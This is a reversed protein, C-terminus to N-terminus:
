FFSSIFFNINLFQLVHYSLCIILICYITFPRLLEYWGCAFLLYWKLIILENIYSRNHPLNNRINFLKLNGTKLIVVIIPRIKNIPVFLIIILILFQILNLFNNIIRHWNNLIRSLKILMKSFHLIFFYIFLYMLIEMSCIQNLIM